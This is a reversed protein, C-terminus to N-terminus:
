KFNTCTFAWISSQFFDKPNKMDHQVTPLASHGGFTFLITGLSILVNYFNSSVITNLKPEKFDFPAGICIFIVAILTSAMSIVVIPRFFLLSYGKFNLIHLLILLTKKSSKNVKNKKFINASPFFLM